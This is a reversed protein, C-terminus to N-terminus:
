NAIVFPSYGCCHRFRHQFIAGGAGAFGFQGDGGRFHSRALAFNGNGLKEGLVAMQETEVIRAFRQQSADLFRHIVREIGAFFRADQGLDHDLQFNGRVAISRRRGTL